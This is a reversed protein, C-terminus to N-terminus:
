RYTCVARIIRESPNPEMARFVMLSDSTTGYDVTATPSRWLAAEFFQTRVYRASRRACDFEAISEFSRFKVGRPNQRTASRNARMKVLKLDGVGMISTPDVEVTDVAADQPDGVITFWEAAAAPQWGALALTVWVALISLRKASAAMFVGHVGSTGKFISRFTWVRNRM